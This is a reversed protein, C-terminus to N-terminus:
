DCKYNECGEAGKEKCYCNGGHIKWICRKCAKNCGFTCFMGCISIRASLAFPECFILRCPNPFLGCTSACPQIFLALFSLKILTKLNM